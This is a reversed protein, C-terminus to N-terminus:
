GNRAIRDISVGLLDGILGESNRELAIIENSIENLPRLPKHKFFHKNFSVEYGIKVSDMNIWAEEAHPRVEKRFFSHIDGTLEVNETDRLDTSTEYTIFEGAAGTPYFGFDPLDAEDCGWRTIGFRM